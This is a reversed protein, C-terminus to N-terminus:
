TRLEKTGYQNLGEVVPDLIVAYQLKSLVTLSVAGVIEEYIDQLHVEALKDTVLWEQGAKREIGYVDSFNDLARLHLAKTQLLFNPKVVGVVREDVDLLYSGMTRVLWEEGAKRVVNNRDTFEKRARLRLAHDQEIVSASINEIVEVEVRPMYTTPGVALWEDGAKRVVGDDDFDRRAVLRLAANQAIVTMKM